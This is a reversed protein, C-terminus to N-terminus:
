QRFALVQPFRFPFDGEAQLLQLVGKGAGDVHAGAGGEGLVDQRRQEGLESSFIGFDVDVQDAAVRRLDLLGKEGAVDLDGKDFSSGRLRVDVVDWEDLVFDHQHCSAAIGARLRQGLLRQGTEIESEPFLLRSRVVDDLALQGLRAYGDVFQPPLDDDAGGFADFLVEFVGIAM